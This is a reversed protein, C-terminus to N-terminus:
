SPDAVSLLGDLEIEASEDNGTVKAPNAMDRFEASCLRALDCILVPQEDHMFCSLSVPMILSDAIDDPVECAQEDDVRIKVPAKSVAIALYELPVGPQQQYALTCILKKATEVSRGLLVDLDMLPVLNTQWYIVSRCYDPAGPVSFVIPANVFELMEHDGVAIFLSDSSELLWADTTTM